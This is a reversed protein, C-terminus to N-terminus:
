KMNTHHANLLQTLFPLPSKGYRETRYPVSKYKKQKTNERGRTKINPIKVQEALQFWHSYKQSNECRKAFNLSLRIRRVCLKEVKLVSVSHEYNEYSHGMIVHLACKQVREIQTAEGKTLGPTWVAVGFELVCRIQKFYVDLMDAQSAGLNKLRRLMWIRSYGNKCINDTNSQWSLNTQFILGLLRFKEVVELRTNTNLLLQPTFDYNRSTNFMVVKTKDSNIRMKNTECYQVMSNLEAQLPTSHSPVVHLTRDHYTLPRSPNPNPMVYDRINFAKALTLDDVFKLHIKPIIKRKTKTVTIHQGLNKELDEYGAFNILILFLFLGLRTGQPSGGPLFKKKSYIM